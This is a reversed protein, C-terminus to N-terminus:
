SDLMISFVFSVLFLPAWRDGVAQRMAPPYDGMVLPHLFWGLNFESARVAASVDDPNSPDRPFFHASNLVLGVQGQLCLVPSPPSPLTIPHLPPFAPCSFPPPPIAGAWRIHIHLTNGYVISVHSRIQQTPLYTSRFDIKHTIFIEM